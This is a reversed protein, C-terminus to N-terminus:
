SGGVGLEVLTRAMAEAEKSAASYVRAKGGPWSLRVWRMSGQTSDGLNRPTDIRVDKLAAIQIEGKRLVGAQLDARLGPVEDISADRLVQYRRYGARAIWFFLTAALGFGAGMWVGSSIAVQGTLALGPWLLAHIATICTLGGVIWAVLAAPRTGRHALIIAHGRRGIEYGASVGLSRYAQEESVRLLTVPRSM